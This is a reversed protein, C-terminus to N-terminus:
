NFSHRRASRQRAAPNATLESRTWSSWAPEEGLWCGTGALDLKKATDPAADLALTEDFVTRGPVLNYDVARYPEDWDGSGRREDYTAFYSGYGRLAHIATQPDLLKARVHVQPVNVALLAFSRNGGALQDRSLAPFYLRPPVPPMLVAFTNSGTLAFRESSAFPPKLHLRYRTEGRFEGCLTLSRFGSQVTLFSPSPTIELWDAVRNTLSEPVPKSLTLRISAGSYIYNVATVGTVVFPTVDGVPAEAAQRLRFLRDASPLAAGVVLRWGKGLPLRPRPTAILVNGVQNTPSDSVDTGSGSPNSNRARAFEEAWTCRFGSGGLGYSAEEDTAQRVDAPIRHWSEDRFYSFRQADEARVNANFLLKIEPESSANRDESQPWVATVGFPPTAVTRGLSVRAAQGDARQLGPRLTLEYRQDLGLPETPVFVGSHRSLWTFTGALPPTIVLPSNTTAPGVENEQVMAPEFRLEFTMAPTPTDTSTVLEVGQSHDHPPRCGNLALGLITLAAVQPLRLTRAPRPFSPHTLSEPVHNVQPIPNVAAHM